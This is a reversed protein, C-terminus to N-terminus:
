ALAEEATTATIAKDLWRELQELDTQADIRAEQQPTLALGRQSLVRRVVRRAEDKRAEERAADLEPKVVEDRLIPERKFLEEVLWRRQERLQPDDTPEIPPLKRFVDFRAGQDMSVSSLMRLVWQPSRRGIIWRALEVLAAGSRVILFPILAEDLPLENAAVWLFMSDVAGVAYVGAALAHLSRLRRLVTPVHPAVMWFGVAGEWAPEEREARRVQWAARRLEARWLALPDLHDGPMKVEVGVDVYRRADRWPLPLSALQEAVCVSLVGDLRVETLGAEQPGEWRLAGGTIDETDSAFTAKAFQDPSGM